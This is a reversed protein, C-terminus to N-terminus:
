DRIGPPAGWNTFCYDSAAFREINDPWECHADSYAPENYTNTAGHVRCFRQMDDASEFLSNLDV